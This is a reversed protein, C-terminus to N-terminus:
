DGSISSDLDVWWHQVPSRTQREIEDYITQWFGLPISLFAKVVETNFQRGSERVIEDRAVSYPQALRYPRYSTMADLTDAIAFIRAGLPIEHGILGQPYGSGDFHEHHTLVIEAAPGLFSIRHVLEYGIRVHTEMITREESTLAGPKHLIADSIGIKGIDHLYAGRTITRIEDSSCNLKKALELSYRTVRRCHEATENDRLGLACGLLRLFEDSTREIRDLGRQLEEIRHLVVNELNLRLHELEREMTRVAAARHIRVILTDPRLPRVLYDSAGAKAALLAQNIDESDTTVVICVDPFRRRVEELFALGVDSPDLDCLLVNFNRSNLKALAQCPDPCIEGSLGQAILARQLAQHIDPANGVVLLSIASPEFDNMM